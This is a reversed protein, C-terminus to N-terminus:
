ARSKQAAEERDIANDQERQELGLSLLERMIVSRTVKRARALANIKDNMDDNVAFSVTHILEESVVNNGKLTPASPSPREM